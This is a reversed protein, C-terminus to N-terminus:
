RRSECCLRGIDRFASGLFGRKKYLAGRLKKQKLQSPLAKLRYKSSYVNLYRPSFMYVELSANNVNFLEEKNKNNEMWLINSCELSKFLKFSSDKENILALEHKGLDYCQGSSKHNIKVM